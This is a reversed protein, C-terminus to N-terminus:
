HTDKIQLDWAFPVGDQVCLKKLEAAVSNFEPHSPPCDLVIDGEVSLIKKCSSSLSVKIVGNDIEVKTIGGYSSRSQDEVQIHIKDMGLKRDQDDYQHNKQIMVFKSPEFEDDAFGLMIIEGDDQLFVHSANLYYDMEFRM